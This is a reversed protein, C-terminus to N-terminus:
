KIATANYQKSDISVTALQRGDPLESSSYYLKLVQENGKKLGLFDKVPCSMEDFATQSDKFRWEKVINNQGDKITVIRNKGIKGCHHYRITLMDNASASNLQLTKIIDMEKGYQQLVVKGNLSIQFGEGGFNSTFSLLTVAIAVLMITKSIISKM